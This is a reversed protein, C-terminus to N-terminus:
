PKMLYAFLDRLAADDLGSLLGEPMLSAPRATLQAIKETRATHVQGALDRLTVGNADQKVLLGMLTEGGTLALSYAGFGERIELSPDLIGTLWFDPNGREYGTLDPGITGGEGWLKHCAACRQAFHTQGRAADGSVGRGAIVKKLRTAEAVKEASSLRPRLNAWHKRVAAAVAPDPYAELQQVVDDSFERPRIRGAAIEALLLDVWERRSALMRLAAERLSPEGAFRAEYGSIVTTALRGDAFKGAVGLVAKRLGTQGARGLIKVMAPVVQANGAAALAQVLSARLEPAAKDDGVIKLARAVAEASGTKVALALDTDLKSKLYVDLAGALAAPLKPISGGEFAAAMGEVVVARDTERPASALLRACADYNEAGGAQAWRRALLRAGQTRALPADWMARDAFWALLAARETEARDEIAWWLLLPMRKDRLDADRTLMIRVIPLAVAAPWRRVSCALQTRVEPHAESTALERIAAALAASVQGADGACRVVWRRVYPDDHRLMAIAVEDTLGGLLHLACLADFAYAGTGGGTGAQLRRGLEPVVSKEGRWALELAAQRRFWKNPHGLWVLLEAVRATHLDFAKERQMTAATPRVRYIRGDGKSWDDVPRVHSLRSDYWDAMWVAGDPGIKVDVPRFWRDIGKLLPAEDVSKFTSTDPVRASVYVMNQLSNPAIIKGAFAAAMLDGDYVCLAQAFRKRDGITEMHEFYGYAYPNRAFGHKGFNKVGSMGQDYHMGRESGNSGSFVRGQADIECSFTNGGGEAFVEFIKTQPHYRWIHQGEFKVNKTVASSVKGTTTSGVAGYLWGDPGFQLSNAVAHTDELGFGSLCVVPDGDPVDDDNADPYFMLYPPNLVWIGGAGKIAATALNLGTIVDTSTEYVGDGDRDELVSIKDAGQVGRPPPEPVKDFQARLHQDYSTVKLGAPFPYQIYQTVWVRGRSDFSLYLPQVVTPETAMVDITLGDRLTLATVAEAASRPASGDRMAGRGVFTEVVKQVDATGAPAGVEAARLSAVAYVSIVVILPLFIRPM